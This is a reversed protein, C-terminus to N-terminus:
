QSEGGAIRGVAARVDKYISRLEEALRKIDQRYTKDFSVSGSTQRIHDRTVEIKLILESLINKLINLRATQAELAGAVKVYKALKHNGDELEKNLHELVLESQRISTIEALLVTFGIKTDNSLIPSIIMHYFKGTETVSIEYQLVEVSTNIEEIKPTKGSFCGNLSDIMDALTASHSLRKLKAPHNVQLINGNYDVVFSIDEASSFVSELNPPLQFFSKDKKIRILFIMVSTSICLCFILFSVKGATQFLKEQPLNLVVGDIMFCFVSLALFCSSIHLLASLESRRYKAFLLINVACLLLIVFVSVFDFLLVSEDLTRMTAGRYFIVIHQCINSDLIFSQMAKKLCINKPSM